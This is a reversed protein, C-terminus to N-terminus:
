SLPSPDPGSCSLECSQSTAIPSSLPHSSSLLRRFSPLMAQDRRSSLSGQMGVFRVFGM